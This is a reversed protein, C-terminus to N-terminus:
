TLVVYPVTAVATGSTITAPATATLSSGSTQALVVQGSVAGTAAAANELTIGALTPVTSAKVMVAAWYLGPVTILQPSSLALTKATNAAWATTTQDASQALLAPTSANSYLAFWWNALTAGATGGSMFTLNTVIDGADLHVPTSLMVASTVATNNGTCFVRPFNEKFFSSPSGNNLWAPNTQAYKGSVLDAM